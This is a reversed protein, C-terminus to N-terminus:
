MYVLKYQVLLGARPYGPATLGSNPMTIRELKSELQRQSRERCTVSGRPFEHERGVFHPSLGWGGVAM